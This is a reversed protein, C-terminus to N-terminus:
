SCVHGLLSAQLGAKTVVAAAVTLTDEGPLEGEEESDDVVVVVRGAALPPVPPKKDVDVAVDLFFFHTHSGQIASSWKRAHL